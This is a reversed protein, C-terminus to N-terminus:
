SLSAAASQAIKILPTPYIGFLMVVFTSITIALRTRISAIIPKEVDSSSLYMVKIVRLYYYASLVSNLVGITALWALGSDVAAGFIYLKVMFGVTPPIGILSVLALALMGGTLPFKRGIGAFSSIKNDGVSNSIVIICGFAALNTVGYGGLYFLIGSIGQYSSQAVTSTSLSALGVLLYGAHAVASYALMRKINSQSIALLNGITMSLVALIAFITTWEVRIADHQFAEHFVRLVVAFGAAKSAVSLFATVPTPSGEYVDPAWMHFPVITIKFGFGAIILTIGLLLAYSGFPQTGLLGGQNITSAIESLVTTGTFGYVLVMGYLLIASSVGSLVLFKLGAESSKNSRLFTSLAAIPLASLELAIYITILEVTSAMLMMGSTSLLILVIFETRFNQFKKSYDTSLLIIIEAACLLIFKLFISFGDVRLSDQLIGRNQVIGNEMDMWLIVSLIIPIVLGISAILQGISDRKTIFNIALIIFSLVIVSLEPSLIYIDHFTM